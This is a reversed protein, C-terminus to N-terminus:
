SLIEPPSQLLWTPCLGDSKTFAAVQPRTIVPLSVLVL